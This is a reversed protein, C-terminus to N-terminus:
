QLARGGDDHWKPPRHMLFAEMGEQAEPTVRVAAILEATTQSWTQRNLASFKRSMAKAEIIAHPANKKVAEVQQELRLSLYEAEVCEHVLGWQTAQEANFTGATLLLPQLQRVPMCHLLYPLITAPVLGLSVETLAFDARTEALVWDACALLGLGGGRVRGHVSAFVPLPFCFLQDFFDALQRADALNKDYSYDKQAAMWKLDAGACFNSGAGSLVVIRLSEDAQLLTLARRLEGIMSANFANHEEPRNLQLQATGHDIAVTITQFDTIGSM